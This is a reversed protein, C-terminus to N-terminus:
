CVACEASVGSLINHFERLSHAVPPMIFDEIKGDKHYTRRDNPRVTMEGRRVVCVHFHSSVGGFPAKYVSDTVVQEIVVPGLRRNMEEGRLLSLPDGSLGELARAYQAVSSGSGISVVNGLSTTVPEFNPSRFVHISGRGHGPLTDETPHVAVMIFHSHLAQETASAKTWASKAPQHFLEAVDNPIWASEPPIPKLWRSVEELISFGIAVSGAFGLAIFRSIPYIKQLCDRTSGDRLTVCVDSLGVAYGLTSAAGVVWTM